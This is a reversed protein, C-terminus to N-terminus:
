AIEGESSFVQQLRARLLKRREILFDEYREIHWLSKDTPILHRKKYEPSRTALWKHLPVERKGSNESGIVLALNEFDDRLEKLHAPAASGKFVDQAFLHDISFDITGWNRDDYLLSLALFCTSDGYTTRLVNEVADQSSAAIRGAERVADDLAAIPFDGNTRHNIELADRLKTLMSDSSGGFVRNLLASLLWRRVRTANIVEIASEGRLTLTPHQYLYYAVPILANASTLTSEDIGFANAADVARRIAERIDDWRNKIRTCTDRTFSSVRYAVPLNLLVLCSKMVFDKNLRNKRTLQDNLVDVFGNIEERANEAGWHLTLTSLLLDSKSLVTGGSNARVFIELIREHDSDIETHYSIVEDVWIAGYLRTLNHKVVSAEQSPLPRVDRIAKIQRDVLADLDPTSSVNLIRGVEFWYSNGRLLTPECDYFEFDYYIDGEPDPTMGDHLLNLYLKKAVLTKAGKGIKKKREVYRGKLGVLLTTLRQQGDLVFTLDHNGHVSVLQARNRSERVTHLFEYAEVDDRAEVPVQWFLFSSIPYRRMLSDFLVCIQDATWVFERQLAPLFFTSNIRPLVDAITESKYGM